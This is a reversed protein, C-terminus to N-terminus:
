FECYQLIEDEIQQVSGLMQCFSRRAFRYMENGSLQFVNLERMEEMLAAIMDRDLAAIKPIGFYEALEQIDKASTGNQGLSERDHYHYAALLAIIYYYDDDGVRLTIFFKDRIQVELKSDALAKKIQEEKLVYPPVANEDYGAYNKQLSEILNACYLQLLGPFYNTTGFITSILTETKEDDPFRFGLYSLPVELLERAETAQFPKITLADLHTLVRNNSLAAKKNFRVINRLGAIVFKFRNEGISEIDKLEDFPKYEVGPEGCSEIFVDAEDLLLLLYPIPPVGEPNRLRKKISRALQSWDETPQEDPLIGEDILTESIKRAAEKYNKGKIDVLVARDGNENRNIDKKAMRLLASKGLQRGGYVLHVGTASEIATLEKQRGMFIEPPLIHVSDYSYPQYYSFPMTVAMLMRNVAYESYHQALYVIVIRDIVMFTNAFNMTKMKRALERRDPLNMGYDLLIITNQASGINRMTDIVRSADMKGRVAVIRFGRKEAESGFVAIPHTYNNKRGNVPQKLYAYYHDNGSIKPQVTVKEVAFGLAEMLSRIKEPSFDPTNPWNDYLRNGGKMDRNHVQMTKLTVGPSGAKVSYVQYNELFERLYDKEIFSEAMDYDNAILRNLLDEAAAYNQIEIRKHIKEVAERMRADTQVEPHERIYADIDQQLAAARSQANKAIQALIGKIIKGFFGYNGNQVAWAFWHDMIQVFSEKMDVKTNDIQGYAYRLELEEMFEKRKTDMGARAYDEARQIETEPLIEEGSGAFRMMYRVILKASGYDDGGQLIAYLREELTQEPESQHREIRAAISLEPIEYVEEFVPLFNCDLLVWENKLFGVYFCRHQAEDYSGDMRKEIETLVDCIIQKGCVDPLASSETQESFLVAERIGQMMLDCLHDYALQEESERVPGQNQVLSVYRCLLTAIKQISKFVNNRLRGMLDSSKKELRILAGAEAWKEDILANIKQSDLNSEDISCEDRILTTMLYESILEVSERENKRVSDLLVALNSGRNFLLKKTELMRKQHATEKADTEIYLEYLKQAEQTVEQLEAELRMRDKQRYNAYADMGHHYRLKFEKMRYILDRLATNQELLPWGAITSYLTHVNHDYMAHDYFFNRIIAAIALYESIPYSVSFYVDYLIDSSYRCQELPDNYAYALQKYFNEMEPHVKMFSRAYATACYPKEAILMEMCLHLIKERKEATLEVPTVAAPVYPKAAYRYPEEPQSEAADEPLDETEEPQSEAADEPQDETEEPQSEAADEPLDETEEPQSEAADEPLDETEEPQSEAAAEPLDETEEPQSEAAAEPLDETKEPQSEAADEPLDETEEPQSEAADEPLDETEEPQSEAAAEPLDETEEPQSEAADEPLDETKEPQSEAAAEAETEEASNQKPLDRRQDLRCIRRLEAYEVRAGTAGSYVSGDTDDMVFTNELSLVKCEQCLWQNVAFAQNKNMGIVLLYSDKLALKRVSRCLELFQDPRNSIIGACILNARLDMCSRFAQAYFYTMIEIVPQDQQQVFWRKWFRVYMMRLMLANADSVSPAANQFKLIRKDMKLLKVTERQQMVKRGKESLVYISDSDKMRLINLYGLKQYSDCLEAAEKVTSNIRYALMEPVTFGNMVIEVLVMALKGQSNRNDNRFTKAGVVGSAKKSVIQQIVKSSASVTMSDPNHIGITEWFSPQEQKPEARCVTVPEAEQAKEQVSEPESRQVTEPEAAPEAAQVIEPATEAAAEPLDAPQAEQM